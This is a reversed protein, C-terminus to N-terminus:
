SKRRPLSAAFEALVDRDHANLREAGRMSDITAYDYQPARGTLWDVSVGYLEALQETREVHQRDDAEIREVDSTLVGLLKAAQAVSLGANKRALRARSM